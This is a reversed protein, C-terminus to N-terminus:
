AEEALNRLQFLGYREVEGRSDTCVVFCAASRTKSGRIVYGLPALVANLQALPLTAIGYDRLYRPKGEPLLMQLLALLAATAADSPRRDPSTGDRTGIPPQSVGALRHDLMTLEAILQQLERRYGQQVEPKWTEALREVLGADKLRRLHQRIEVLQEHWIAGTLRRLRKPPPTTSHAQVLFAARDATNERRWARELAELPTL